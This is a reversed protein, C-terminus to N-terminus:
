MGSVAYSKQVPSSPQPTLSFLYAERKGLLGARRFETM